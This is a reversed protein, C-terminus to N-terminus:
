LWKVLISFVPSGKLEDTGAGVEGAGAGGAAKLNGVM